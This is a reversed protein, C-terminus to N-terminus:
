GPRQGPTLTGLRPFPVAPHFTTRHICPDSPAVGMERLADEPKPCARILHAKCDPEVRHLCDVQCLTGMKRTRIEQIMQLDLGNRSCWHKVAEQDEPSLENYGKPTLIM